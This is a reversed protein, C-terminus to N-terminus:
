EKGERGHGFLKGPGSETALDSLINVLAFEHGQSGDLKACRTRVPQASVANRPEEIVVVGLVPDRTRAHLVPKLLDNVGIEMRPLVTTTALAGELECLNFEHEHLNLQTKAELPARVAVKGANRGADSRVDVVVKTRGSIGNTSALAQRQVGTVDEERSTVHITEERPPAPRGLNRNADM